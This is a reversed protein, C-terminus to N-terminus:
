SRRGRRPAEDAIVSHPTLLEYNLTSLFFVGGDEDFNRRKLPPLNLTTRAPSPNQATPFVEFSEEGLSDLHLHIPKITISVGYIADQPDHDAEQKGRM